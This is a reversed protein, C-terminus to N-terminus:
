GFGFLWAVDQIVRTVESSCCSWSFERQRHVMLTSSPPIQDIGLFVGDQVRRHHRVCHGPRDLKSMSLVPPACRSVDPWTELFV